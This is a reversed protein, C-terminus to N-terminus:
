NLNKPLPIIHLIGNENFMAEGAATLVVNQIPINAAFAIEWITRSYYISHSRVFFANAVDAKRAMYKNTWAGNCPPTSAPNHSLNRAWAPFAPDDTPSSVTLKWTIGADMLRPWFADTFDSKEVKDTNWRGESSFLFHQLMPLSVMSGDKLTTMCNSTLLCPTWMSSTLLNMAAAVSTLYEVRKYQRLVKEWAVLEFPGWERDPAYAPRVGMAKLEKALQQSDIEGDDGHPLLRGKLEMLVDTMTQTFQTGLAPVSTLGSEFIGTDSNYGFDSMLAIGRPWLSKKSRAEYSESQAVLDHAWKNTRPEWVPEAFVIPLFLPPKKNPM